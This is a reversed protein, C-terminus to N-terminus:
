QAGFIPIMCSFPLTFPCYTTTNVSLPHVGGYDHIPELGLRASACPTSHRLLQAHHAPARPTFQPHRLDVVTRLLTPETLCQAQHSGAERQLSSTSYKPPFWSSLMGAVTPSMRLRWDSMRQSLLSCTLCGRVCVSVCVSVCVCVCLCVCPCVCM